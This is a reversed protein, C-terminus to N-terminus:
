QCCLDFGKFHIFPEPNYFSPTNHRSAGASPPLTHYNRQMTAAARQQEEEAVQNAAVTFQSDFLRVLSCLAVM